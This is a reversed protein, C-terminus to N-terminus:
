KSNWKGAVACFFITTSNAAVSLATTTSLANIVDTTGANAFVNTANAGANIVIVIAGPFSPPLQCSDATTAVTTLRNMGPQLLTAGTQGGGALATIGNTGTGLPTTSNREIQQLTQIDIVGGDPQGSYSLNGPPTLFTSAM